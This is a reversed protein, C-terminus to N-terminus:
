YYGWIQDASLPHFITKTTSLITLANKDGLKYEPAYHKM